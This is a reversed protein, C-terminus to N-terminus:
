FKHGCEPCFKPTEGDPEYGCSECKVKEEPRASGCEPCFKGTNDTKGCTCKWSGDNVPTEVQVPVNEVEETTEPAKTEEVSGTVRYLVYEGETTRGTILTGDLSIDPAYKFCFPIVTEGNLGICGWVGDLQVALIKQCARGTSVDEYKTPLEGSTATIVLYKGMNEVAVFPANYVFGKYSYADLEYEVSATVNGKEDLYSLRGKEDVVANYGSAFLGEDSYAIDAYQPKAIVTGDLAIIGRLGNSRVEMYNQRFTAYDYPLESALVHGQLDLLEKNQTFYVTQEVQDATLTCSSTFAEQQTPNHLVGNKSFTDFESRSVYGDGTVDTRNFDSDLWYLTNSSTKVSLYPGVAGVNYSAIYDERGLSGIMKDQYVVDTRVINYHNGSSDKYEGVDSDTKELVFALVWNENVFLMDGYAMPLVEQGVANLLGVGNLNNENQVELYQGNLRVTIDGYAASLATGQADFLQYGESTRSVYCNTAKCLTVSRELETKELSVTEAMACSLMLVLALLGALMKKMKM